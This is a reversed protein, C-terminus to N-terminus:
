ATELVVVANHGGFGFSNSIARAPRGAATKLPRSAGPVYDLDLEPDPQELGLTPPAVRDTLAQLTAVAEVAGAAGLLHGIASKLSSIPIEGAREGLASKLAFTEAHDNLQTSTGHANVYDIDAASVGADKLAATIARAAGAGKPDPATLHFADCSAAYGTIRGLVRAGREHASDASELVMMGAGEGMVFGDRRADFPRSIGVESTADLSSFCARALPTLAAETGGTVM